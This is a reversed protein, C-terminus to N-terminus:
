TRSSSQRTPTRSHSSILHCQRQPPRILPLPSLCTPLSHPSSSCPGQCNSPKISLSIATNTSYTSKSCKITTSPAKPPTIPTILPVLTSLLLTTRNPLTLITTSDQLILKIRAGCLPTSPQRTSVTPLQQFNNLAKISFM